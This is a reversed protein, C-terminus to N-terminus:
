EVPCAADTRAPRTDLTGQVVGSQAARAAEAVVVDWCPGRDVAELDAAEGTQEVAGVVAADALRRLCNSM